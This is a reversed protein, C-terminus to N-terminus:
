ATCCTLQWVRSRLYYGVSDFSTIFRGEIVKRHFLPVNLDVNEVLIALLLWSAAEGFRDVVEM